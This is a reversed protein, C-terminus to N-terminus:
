LEGAAAVAALSKILAVTAIWSASFAKFLNELAAEELPL